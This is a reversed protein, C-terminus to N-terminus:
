LRVPRFYLLLVSCTLLLKRSFLLPFTHSASLRIAAEDWRRAAAPACPQAAALATAAAPAAALAAAAAAAPAQSRTATTSAAPAAATANAASAADAATATTVAAPQLPASVPPLTSSDCGRLQTLGSRGLLRLWGADCPTCAAQCM